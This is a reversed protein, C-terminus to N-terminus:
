TGDPLVAPTAAARRFWPLSTGPLNGGPVFGLANAVGPAECLLADMGTASAAHQLQGLTFFAPLPVLPVQAREAALDAVVWDIGNDAILGLVRPRARDFAAALQQVRVEVAAASLAKGAGCLAARDHSDAM